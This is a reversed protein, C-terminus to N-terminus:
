PPGPRSRGLVCRFATRHCDDLLLRPAPGPAAGAIIADVGRSGQHCRRGPSLRGQDAGIPAKLQDGPEIGFVQTGEYISGGLGEVADALGRVLRAPDLAACHPTYTAGLM